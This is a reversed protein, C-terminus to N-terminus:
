FPLDADNDDPEVPGRKKPATAVITDGDVKSLFKVEDAVVTTWVKGDKGTNQERRGSVYVLMGKRVFRECAEASKGFVKVNEWITTKNEGFGCDTAVSFSVIKTKSEFTKPDQGVRGVLISKNIM